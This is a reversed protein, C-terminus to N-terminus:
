INILILINIKKFSSVNQNNNLAFNKEIINRYFIVNSQTSTNVLIKVCPIQYIYVFGSDQWCNFPIDFQIVNNIVCTDKQYADFFKIQDAFYDVYIIMFISCLIIMISGTQLYITYSVPQQTMNTEIELNFYFIWINVVTFSQIIFWRKKM